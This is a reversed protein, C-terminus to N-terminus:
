LYGKTIQEELEDFNWADNVKYEGASYANSVKEPVPNLKM